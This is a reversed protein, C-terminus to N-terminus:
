TWSIRKLLAPAERTARPGRQVIGAIRAFSFSFCTRVAVGYVVLRLAGTSGGIAFGIVALALAWALQLRDVNADVYRLFPDEVVDEVYSHYHESRAFGLPLIWSWRTFPDLDTGAHRRHVRYMAAYRIPSAQPGSWSLAGLLNGVVELARPPAFDARAVSHHHFVRAAGTFLLATALAFWLAGPTFLFPAIGLAISHVGVLWWFNRHMFVPKNHDPVFRM